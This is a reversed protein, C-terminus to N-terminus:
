GTVKASRNFIRDILGRNRLAESEARAAKERQSIQNAEIRAQEIETKRDSLQQLFLQNQHEAKEREVDVATKLKENFQDPSMLSRAAERHEQLRQRTDDLDGRLESLQQDKERVIELLDVAILDIDAQQAQTPAPLIDSEIGQGKLEGFVRLLEATDIKGGAGRSLTGDNIKDYVTSRACGVAKASETVSLLM